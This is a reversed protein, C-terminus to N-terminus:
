VRRGDVEHLGLGATNPQRGTAVLIDASVRQEKGEASYVVTWAAGDKLVETVQAGTVVQVGEEELVSRLTESTEPEERPAVRGRTIFTVKSGVQKTIRGTAPDVWDVVGRPSDPVILQGEQATIGGVGDQGAVPPLQLVTRVQSGAVEDVVDQAQRAAYM